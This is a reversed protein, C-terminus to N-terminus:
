FPLTSSLTTSHLLPTILLYYYDRNFKKCEDYKYNMYKCKQIFKSMLELKQTINLDFTLDLMIEGFQLSLVVFKIEFM